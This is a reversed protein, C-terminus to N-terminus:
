RQIVASYARDNIATVRGNQVTVHERDPFTPLQLALEKPVGIATLRKVDAPDCIRFVEVRTALMLVARHAFYTSQSTIGIGIGHHRRRAIADVWLPSLGRAKAGQATVAEDAVVMVPWYRGNKASAMAAQAVKMGVRLADDADPVDLIHAVRGGREALGRALDAGTAYHAKPVDKDEDWSNTPDSVILYAGVRQAERWAEHRLWYSKGSGPAGIAVAQWNWSKLKVAM